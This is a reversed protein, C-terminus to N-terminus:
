QTGPVVPRPPHPFLSKSFPTTPHDFKRHCGGRRESFIKAGAVLNDDTPQVPPARHPMERKIHADLALDALEQEFPLPPSDTAVPAFGQAFYFYVAIPIIAVGILLGIIFRM